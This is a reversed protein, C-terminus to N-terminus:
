LVDHHSTRWLFELRVPHGEPEEWLCSFLPYHGASYNLCYTWDFAQKSHSISKVPTEVPNRVGAKLSEEQPKLVVKASTAAAKGDSSEIQRRDTFIRDLILRVM